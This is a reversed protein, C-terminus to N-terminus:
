GFYAPTRCLRNCCKKNGPCERDRSCYSSGGGNGGHQGGPNYNGGPYSGGSNGGGFGGGNSNTYYPSPGNNADNSYFVQNSDDSVQRRSRYNGQYYGSGSSGFGNGPRYCSGPKEYNSNGGGIIGTWGWNVGPILFRAQANQSQIDNQRKTKVNFSGDNDDLVEDPPLIDSSPQLPGTLLVPLIQQHQEPEQDTNIAFKPPSIQPRQQIHPIESGSIRAYYKLCINIPAFHTASSGAANTSTDDEHKLVETIEIHLRIQCCAKSSRYRM